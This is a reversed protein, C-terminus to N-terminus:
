TNRVENGKKTILKKKWNDANGKKRLREHTNNEADNRELNEEPLNDSVIQEQINDVSENVNVARDYAPGQDTTNELEIDSMPIYDLDNPDDPDSEENPSEYLNYNYNAKIKSQNEPRNITLFTDKSVEDKPSEEFDSIRNFISQNLIIDIQQTENINEMNVDILTSIGLEDEQNNANSGNITSSQHPPSDPVNFLGNYLVNLSLLFLLVLCTINGLLFLFLM